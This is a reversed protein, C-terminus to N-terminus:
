QERPLYAPPLGLNNYKEIINELLPPYNDTKKINELKNSVKQVTSKRIASANSSKDLPFIQMLSYGANDVIHVFSLNWKAYRIRITGFHRYQYPIEFRKSELSITSDSRRIKRVVERRFMQRLYDLDPCERSVDKNNLFRNLPTTKIESHTSKNYEIEVWAITLNNLEKLTVVKKNKLMAMLRGELQAWFVEQKGNQYPAYPLTTKHEIGIRLLGETFEASTMAAGNDSMLSRPIGRKQLAQQFGHILDDATESNYWQIHCILRSHDDIIALISPRIIEGTSTIIKRSSHHFDLHWLGNVYDNEYSRIEQGEQIKKSNQYGTRDKSQHEKIKFKGQSKLFRKVTSYSPMAEINQKKLDAILNDQHLQYSWSQYEDYRDLIIKKVEESLIRSVGKDSREQSRLIDVPSIKAKKASYYWQEITHWHYCIPKNTHPHIWKKQSLEKFAYIIEGRKPPSSLLSGIISFRFEALQQSKSKEQM